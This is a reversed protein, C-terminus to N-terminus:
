SCQLTSKLNDAFAQGKIAAVVALGFNVASGMGKATIISGDTCVFNKSISAGKLEDEFGPFCVAEKGELLGKRGLILPAACIACLLKRNQACFEIAKHVEVCDYLNTTGPMGGPLIIGEIDKYDKIDYVTMDCVVSIGHSGHVTLSDVAVSKIEIGARRIVDLAAIAEVEEFGEAFFMYLM